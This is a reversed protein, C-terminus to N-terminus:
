RLLLAPIMHSLPWLREIRMLERREAAAAISVQSHSVDTHVCKCGDQLESTQMISHVHIVYICLPTKFAGVFAYKLMPEKRCLTEPTRTGRQSLEPCRQPEAEALSSCVSLLHSAYSANPQGAEEREEQHGSQSRSAKNLYDSIM